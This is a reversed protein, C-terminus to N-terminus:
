HRDGGAELLFDNLVVAIHQQVRALPQAADIVRFRDSHRTAQQLYEQRVREFFGRAENEFRDLTGRKGARVLGTEVPADLLITMDPRLSGLVWEELVAIHHNPIGRGGGQYAYTADTFRDSVVWLGNDLAPRIVKSVHEARAAFMLLLETDDAMGLNRNSLLLGRVQEGVPTGGPERTQVIKKGAAALFDRVYELNTSKGVGEIGELTIFRGRTAASM